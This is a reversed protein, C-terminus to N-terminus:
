ISSATTGPPVVWSIAISVPAGWEEFPISSWVPNFIYADFSFRTHVHVDGFYAHREIQEAHNDAMTVSGVAALLAGALISTARHM